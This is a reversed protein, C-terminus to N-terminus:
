KLRERQEAVCDNWGEDYAALNEQGKGHIHDITNPLVERAILDLLRQTARQKRWFGTPHNPDAYDLIEEIKEKLSTEPNPNADTPKSM